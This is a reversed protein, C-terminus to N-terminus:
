TYSRCPKKSFYIIILPLVTDYWVRSFEAVWYHGHVMIPQRKESPRSVGTAIVIMCEVNVRWKLPVAGDLGVVSM